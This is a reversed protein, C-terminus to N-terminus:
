ADTLSRTLSIVFETFYPPLPATVSLTSYSSGRLSRDLDDVLADAEDRHGAIARL